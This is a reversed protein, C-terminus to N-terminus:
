GTEDELMEIDQLGQPDVVVESESTAFYALINKRFIKAKYIKGSQRYRNAFWRAIKPEITWSLGHIDDKKDTATGRYIVLGEQSSITDLFGCEDPDCINNVGAQRFLKVFAAKSINPDHNPSGVTTWATCLMQGLDKDSLYPKAHKLFAIRYSKTILGIFQRAETMKELVNRVEQRWLNLDDDNESIDCIKFKEGDKLTLHPSDTYPHNVVFPVETQEVDMYLFAIALKRVSEIDTQKRM